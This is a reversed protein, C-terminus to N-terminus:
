TTTVSSLHLKVLLFCFSLQIGPHDFSHVLSNCFDEDREMNLEMILVRGTEQQTRSSGTTLTIGHVANM